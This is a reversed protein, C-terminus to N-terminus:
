RKTMISRCHVKTLFDILQEFLDECNIDCDYNSYLDVMFSPHRAMHVLTELMLERTEGRAPAVPPRSRQAIEVDGHDEQPSDSLGAPSSTAPTGPRPSGLLGRQQALSTAQTKPQASPALRDIAFTFFLEQQLKLHERMTEFMTSIVNLAMYLV